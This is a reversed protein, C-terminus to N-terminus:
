LLVGVLKVAGVEPAYMAVGTRPAGSELNLRLYHIIGGSSAEAAARARLPVRPGAGPLVRGQTAQRRRRAGADGGGEEEAAGGPVAARRPHPLGGAAADAV